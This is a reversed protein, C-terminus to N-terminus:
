MRLIIFYIIICFISDITDYLYKSKYNSKYRFLLTWYQGLISLLILLLFLGIGLPAPLIFILMVALMWYFCEIGVIIFYKHLMSIPVKDLINHIANYDEVDVKKLNNFAEDVINKINNIDIRFILHYIEILICLTLIVIKM